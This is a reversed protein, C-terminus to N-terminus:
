KRTRRRARLGGSSAAAESLGPLDGANEEAPEAKVIEDDSGEDFSEARDTSDDEKLDKGATGNKPIRDRLERLKAKKSNLITVFKTYAASEFEVKENSFRESQLLCKEAESKLKQYSQTKRVVEEQVSKNFVKSNSLSTYLIIVKSM